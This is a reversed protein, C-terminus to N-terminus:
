GHALLPPEPRGQACLGQDDKHWDEGSLSSLRGQACLRRTMRTRGPRGACLRACSRLYKAFLWIAEDDDNDDDTADDHDGDTGGGTDDDTYADNM